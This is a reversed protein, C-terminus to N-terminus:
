WPINKLIARRPLNLGLVFVFAIDPPDSSKNRDCKLFGSVVMPINLFVHQLVTFIFTSIISAPHARIKKVLQM